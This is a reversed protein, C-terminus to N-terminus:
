LERYSVNSDKIKVNSYGYRELLLEVSKRSLSPFPAPGIIIEMIPLKQVGEGKWLELFPKIMGGSTDFEIIDIPEKAHVVRWEKEEKFSQHKFLCLERVMKDSLLKAVYQIFEDSSGARLVDLSIDIAKQLKQHQDREDYLVRSPDKLFPPHDATFGICFRGKASGYARWQSLHDPEECFCILYLDIVKGIDNLAERVFKLMQQNAQTRQTALVENIVKRALNQGYLIENSDNLYRFNSARLIGSKIIGLLGNVSTYHYFFHVMFDLLSVSKNYKIDLARVAEGEQKTM